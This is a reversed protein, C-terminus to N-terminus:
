IYLIINYQIGASCIIYICYVCVTYMINTMCEYVYLYLYTTHGVEMVNWTTILKIYRRAYQKRKAENRVQSARHPRTHM